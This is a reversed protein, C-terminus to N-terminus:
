RHYERKVISKFRELDEQTTIKFNNEDGPILAMDMGAIVAPETSGNIELIQNPLLSKNAEYYRQFRFAEPAQGAFVCSRDLLSSIRKGDNSYYMTDKVPLIPVAGEHSVLAELCHSVLQKTVFPRVADHIVVSTDEDACAEIDALGQLISTQRNSGPKSFGKFKKEYEDSAPELRMKRQIFERWAEDAIIQIGHIKEHEAFLSLCHCIIPRGDIEIYQKPIKAGLRTGTGGALIIAINM